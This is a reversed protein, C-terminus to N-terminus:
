DDSKGDHTEKTNIRRIEGGKKYEYLFDVEPHGGILALLTEHINGLPKRDIHSYRFTALVRCGQWPKSEIILDGGSEKASQCLLPLGLGTKKGKTSFFPDLCNKIEDENMGDGDDNIEIVVVDNKEDENIIIEINKESASISNEVIDLIHLSLDEM